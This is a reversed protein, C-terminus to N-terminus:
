FRPMILDGKANFICENHINFMLIIFQALFITLYYEVFYTQPEFHINFIVINETKKKISALADICPFIFKNLFDRIQNFM